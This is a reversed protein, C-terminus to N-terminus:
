YEANNEQNALHLWLWWWSVNMQLADACGWTHIPQGILQHWWTFHYITPRYKYIESVRQSVPILCPVRGTKSCSRTSCSLWQWEHHESLSVLIEESISWARVEIIMGSIHFCIKFSWSARERERRRESERERKTKRKKSCESGDSAHAIWIICLMLFIYIIIPWFTSIRPRSSAPISGAVMWVQFLQNLGAGGNGAQWM